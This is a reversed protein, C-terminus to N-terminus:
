KGGFLNKLASQHKQTDDKTTKKAGAPVTKGTKGKAKQKSRDPVKTVVVDVIFVEQFEASLSLINETEKNTTVGLSKMQMNKYLRKPTLVDFLDNSMQLTLFSQYIKGLESPNDGSMYMDMKLTTPKKYKHDSISAGNQVPHQTIEISDTTSESIILDPILTGILRGTKPKIISKDIKQLTGKDQVSQKLALAKKVKGRIKSPVYSM